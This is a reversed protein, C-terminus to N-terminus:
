TRSMHAAAADRAAAALRKERQHAIDDIGDAKREPPVLARLQTLADMLRGACMSKSTASNGGDIEDALALALAALASGAIEPASRRVAALDLEVAARVSM